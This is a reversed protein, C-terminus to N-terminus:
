QFPRFNRTARMDAVRRKDAEFRARLDGLESRRAERRQHRYFDLPPGASGAKQAALMSEAAALAVGGSVTSM